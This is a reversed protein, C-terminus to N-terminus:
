CERARLRSELSELKARAEGEAAAEARSLARRLQQRDQTLKAIEARQAVYQEQMEAEQRRLEAEADARAAGLATEARALSGAAATARAETDSRQQELEIAAQQLRNGAGAAAGLLSRWQVQAQAARAGRESNLERLQAALSDRETLLGILERRALAPPLRLWREARSARSALDAHGTNARADAGTGTPPAFLAMLSPWDWTGGAVPVPAAATALVLELADASCWLIDPAGGDAAFGRAEAVTHAGTEGEVWAVRFAADGRIADLLAAAKVCHEGGTSRVAPPSARFVRRLADVAGHPPPALLGRLLSAPLAQRHGPQQADGQAGGAGLIVGAGVGAHAPVDARAATALWARRDYLLEAEAAALAERRACLAAGVRQLRAVAADLRAEHALLRASASLVAAFGEAADTASNDGRHRERERPLPMLPNHSPSALLSCARKLAAEASASAAARASSAEARAEADAEYQSARAAAIAAAGEADAAREQAVRARAGAAAADRRAQDLAKSDKRQRRAAARAAREAVEQEAGRQLLVRLVQRRWQAAVNQAAAVADAAAPAVADAAATGRTAAASVAATAPPLPACAVGRTAAALAVSLREIEADQLRVLRELASCRRAAEGAGEDADEGERSDGQAAGKTQAGSVDSGSAKGGTSSSAGGHVDLTRLTPLTRAVDGQLASNDSSLPNGAVWMDGLAPLSRLYALNRVTAIANDRLDLTRLRPFPRWGPADPRTLNSFGSLSEIANSALNLARLQPLAGLTRLTVAAEEAPQLAICNHSLDLRLLAPIRNLYEVRKIRNHSLNLARLDSVEELIRSVLEPTVETLAM